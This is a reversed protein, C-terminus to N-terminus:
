INAFILPSTHLTGLMIGPMYTEVQTITVRIIIM